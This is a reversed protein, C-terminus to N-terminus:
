LAGARYEGRGIRSVTSRSVGLSRAVRSPREGGRVRRFAERVQADSLKVNGRQKGPQARNAKAVARSKEDREIGQYWGVAPRGTLWQGVCRRSVGLEAALQAQSVGGANYRARLAGLAAPTIVRAPM